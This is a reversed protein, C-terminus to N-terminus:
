FKKKLARYEFYTMAIVFVDFLSLIVLFISPFLSYRYVQYAIFALFIAMALPYAWLKKKWLAIVLFIKVVGHILLYLVWFTQIAINYNSFIHLFYNTLLDKPDELIENQMLFGVVKKVVAPAIALTLIGGAIELIGNLGKLLISALFINHRTIKM